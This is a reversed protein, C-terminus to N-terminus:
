IRIASHPLPQSVQRWWPFVPTDPTLFSPLGRHTPHGLQSRLGRCTVAPIESNQPLCPGQPSLGGDRGKPPGCKSCDQNRRHIRLQLVTHFSSPPPLSHGFGPQHTPALNNAPCVHGAGECVRPPHAPPRNGSGEWPRKGAGALLADQALAVGSASLWGAQLWSAAMSRAGGAVEPPQAWGPVTAM